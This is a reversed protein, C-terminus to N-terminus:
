SSFAPKASTDDNENGVGSVTTTACAIQAQAHLKFGHVRGDVAPDRGQREVARVDQVARVLLPCAIQDRQDVVKRARSSTRTTTTRPAPRAKQLPMSMVASDSPSVPM